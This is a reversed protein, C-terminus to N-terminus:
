DERGTGEESGDDSTIHCVEDAALEGDDHAAADEGDSADELRCGGAQAQHDGTAEDTSEAHTEDGGNDNEVHRLNSRLFHTSCEDGPVLETDGNTDQQGVADHVGRLISAVRSRVANWDGHLEQPCEDESRTQSKERIGRAVKHFSALQLLGCGSQGSNAPLWEIRQINTFLKRLDNGVM